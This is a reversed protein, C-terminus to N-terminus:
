LIKSNNPIEITHFMFENAHLTAFAKWNREREFKDRCSFRIILTNQEEVPYPNNLGVDITQNEALCQHIEHCKDNWISTGSSDVIKCELIEFNYAPNNSCNTIKVGLQTKRDLSASEEIMFHPANREMELYDLFLDRRKSEERIVHTQWLALASLLTTGLFSLISGCYNLADGASWESVFFRCLPASKFLYNIIAPVLLISLFILIIVLILCKKHSLDVRKM